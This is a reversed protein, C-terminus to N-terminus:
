VYEEELERILVDTPHEEDNINTRDELDLYYTGEGFDFDFETCM